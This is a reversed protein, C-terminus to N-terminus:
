EAIKEKQTRAPIPRWEWGQVFEGKSDTEIWINRRNAIMKQVAQSCVRILKGVSTQSRGELFASLPTFAGDPNKSSLTLPKIEPHM